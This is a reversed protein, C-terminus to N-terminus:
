RDHEYNIKLTPSESYISEAVDAGPPNGSVASDAITFEGPPDGAEGDSYGQVAHGSMGEITDNRALGKIGYPQGKYQYLAIGDEGGDITTKEVTAFGQVLFAGVYRSHAIRDSKIVVQPSSPAAAEDDEYYIGYGNHEVTTTKVLTGTAAGYLLIGTAAYSEPEYENEGVTSSTITSKAGYGVQVGNQATVTTAGAGTVKVQKLSASAQAGDVNIGTKQYGSVEVGKLTAKAAQEPSTVHTGIEIGVGGQCGNIPQAGAAVVTSNSMKLNAGGGVNVGYLNGDCTEAPWAADVELGNITATIAGCISIGDEVMGEGPTALELASDCSTTSASPAAPLKVVVGSTYAGLKVTRTIQLQEEYTGPCVKITPASGGLAEQIHSYGPHSCSNYPSSPSLTSVWATKAQAAAPLAALVTVVVLAVTRTGTRM